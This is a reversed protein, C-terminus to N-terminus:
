NGTTGKEAALDQAKKFGSKAAEVLYGNAEAPSSDKLLEYLLMDVYGNVNNSQSHALKALRLAENLDSKVGSGYRYAAALNYTAWANGSQSSLRYYEIAKGQDKTVGFKGSSLLEAAKFQAWMNGTQSAAREYLRLARPGDPPQQKLYYDGYKVIEWVGPRLRKSESTCGSFLSIIVLGCIVRYM